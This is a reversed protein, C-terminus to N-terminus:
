FSPQTTSLLRDVTVDLLTGGVYIQSTFYYVTKDAAWGAPPLTKKANEPQLM